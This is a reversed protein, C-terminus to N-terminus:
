IMRILILHILKLPSRSSFTLNPTSRMIRAEVRIKNGSVGDSSRSQSLLQLTPGAMNGLVMIHGKIYRRVKVPMQFKRFAPKLSQALILGCLPTMSEILPIKINTTVKRRLSYLSRKIGIVARIGDIIMHRPSVIMMLDAAEYM